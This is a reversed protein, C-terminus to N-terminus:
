LFDMAVSTVIACHLAEFRTSSKECTAVFRTYTFVARRAPAVCRLTAIGRATENAHVKVTRASGLKYLSKPGGHASRVIAATKTCLQSARIDKWKWLQRAVKTEKRTKHSLNVRAHKETLRLQRVLSISSSSQGHSLQSWSKSKNMIIIETM